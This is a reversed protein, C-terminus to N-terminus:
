CRGEVARGSAQRDRRNLPFAIQGNRSVDVVDGGHRDEAFQWIAMTAIPHQARNAIGVPPRARLQRHTSEIPIQTVLLWKALCLRVPLPKILYAVGSFLERPGLLGGRVKEDPDELSLLSKVIRRDFGGEEIRRGEGDEIDDQGLVISLREDFELENQARHSRKQIAHREVSQPLVALRPIYREQRALRSDGAILQSM